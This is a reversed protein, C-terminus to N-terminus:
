QKRVREYLLYKSTYPVGGMQVPVYFASRRTLESYSKSLEFGSRLLLSRLDEDPEGETIVYNVENLNAQRVVDSIGGSIRMQWGRERGAYYFDLPPMVLYPGNGLLQDAAKSLIAANRNDRTALACYSRYCLTIGVAWTLMACCVIRRTRKSTKVLSVGVLIFFLPYLYLFRYSYADTMCIVTLCLGTILALYKPGDRRLLAWVLLMTLIPSLEFSLLRHGLTHVSNDLDRMVLLIEQIYQPVYKWVPILLIAVTSATSIFFAILRKRTAGCWETTRPTEPLGTTLCVCLFPLLLMATIWIWVSIAFLAGGVVACRLPHRSVSCKILVLAAGIAAAIAWADVRGNRYSSVVVPDILFATGLSLSLCTRRTWTRLLLVMLSACVVGGALSMVRPGVYSGSVRYSVEQLGPGLYTLRHLPSQASPIWTASWSSHPDFLTTRGWDTIEVEDEFITPSIRITLLQPVVCVLVIGIWLLL